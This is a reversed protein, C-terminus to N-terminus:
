NKLIFFGTKKIFFALKIFLVIQSNILYLLRLFKNNSFLYTFYHYKIKNINSLFGDRNGSTFLHTEINKKKFGNLLQMLVKPSGSYDNLLHTAIIRM